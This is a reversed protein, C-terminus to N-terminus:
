RAWLPAPYQGKAAAARAVTRIYDAHPQLRVGHSGRPLGEADIAGLTNTAIVFYRGKAFAAQSFVGSGSDGSISARGYSMLGPRVDFTHSSFQFYDVISCDGLQTPACVFPIAELKRRELNGNDYEIRTGTETDWRAHIAGRGVIAVSSPPREAVNTFLDVGAPRVGTVNRDLTLFALDDICSNNGSPGESSQVTYWEAGPRLVTSDTTVHMSANILVGNFASGCSDNPDVAVMREVCHRATLVLNPAILTASCRTTNAGGTPCSGDAQLPGVCLGVAFPHHPDLPAGVLAGRQEGMSEVDNEGAANGCAAAMLMMGLAFKKM